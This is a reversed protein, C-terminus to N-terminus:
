TDVLFPGLELDPYFKLVGFIDIGEMVRVEM